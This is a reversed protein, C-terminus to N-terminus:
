SMVAQTYLCLSQSHPPLGLVVVDGTNCKDVLHVVGPGTHVISHLGHLLPKSDLWQQSLYWQPSSTIESSHYIQHV